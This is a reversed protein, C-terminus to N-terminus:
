VKVACLRRRLLECLTGKQRVTMRYAIETFCVTFGTAHHQELVACRTYRLKNVLLMEVLRQRQEPAGTMYVGYVEQRNIRYHMIDRVDILAHKIVM